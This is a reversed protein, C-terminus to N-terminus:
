CGGGRPRSRDHESAIPTFVKWCTGRSAKGEERRRRDKARGCVFPLVCVYWSARAQAPTVLVRGVTHCFLACVRSVFLSAPDEGGVSSPPVVHLLYPM